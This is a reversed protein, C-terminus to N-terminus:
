LTVNSIVSSSASYGGVHTPELLYIDSHCYAWSSHISAHISVIFSALKRCESLVHMKVTVGQM